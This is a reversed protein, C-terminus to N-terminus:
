IYGAINAVQVFYPINEMSSEHIHVMMPLLLLEEMHQFPLYLGNKPISSEGEVNCNQVNNALSANKLFISLSCTYLIDWNNNIPENKKDVETHLYKRSSPLM